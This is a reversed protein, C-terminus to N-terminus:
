RHGYKKLRARQITWATGALYGQVDTIERRRRPTLALYSQIAREINSRSLVSAPNTRTETLWDRVRTSGGVLVFFEGRPHAYLTGPDRVEHRYHTLKGEKDSLYHIEPVEGIRVLPTHLDLALRKLKEPTRRNFREFSRVSERVRDRRM